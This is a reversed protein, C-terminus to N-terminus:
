KWPNQSRNFHENSRCYYYLLSNFAFIASFFLIFYSSNLLLLNLLIKMRKSKIQIKLSKWLSKLKTLHVMFQSYSFTITQFLFFFSKTTKSPNKWVRIGTFLIFSFIEHKREIIVVEYCQILPKLISIYVYFQPLAFLNWTFVLLLFCMSFFMNTNCHKNKTAKYYELTWLSVNSSM